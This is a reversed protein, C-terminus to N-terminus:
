KLKYTQLISKKKKIMSDRKIPVHTVPTLITYLKAGTSIGGGRVRM